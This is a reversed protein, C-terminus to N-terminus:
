LSERRWPIGLIKAYSKLRKMNERFEARKARTEEGHVLFHKGVNAKNKPGTSKGGHVRCVNKGKIAPCRCQQRTSKCTAACRRCTIKGGAITFQQPEYTM